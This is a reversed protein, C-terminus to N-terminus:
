GAAVQELVREFGIAFERALPSRGVRLPNE